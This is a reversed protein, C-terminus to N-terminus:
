VQVEEARARLAAAAEAIVKEWEGFREQRFIRLGPYWPSDLRGQLWRWDGSYRDLMWVPIGLAGALHVMSSDISIVLDLNAALAATDAFDEFSGTWDHWEIGSPVDPPSEGSARKQLSVWCVGPTALLPLIQGFALSRQADHGHERRGAWAIGVRPKRRGDAGPAARRELRQRWLERAPAPVRLYPIDRPLTEPRTAFARPLSLLPCQWDWGSFEGSLQSMMAIKEGFSWECLRLTPPSCAFGVRAFREPLLALYRSFQFVDGYGQETVVLIGQKQTGGEGNWQPLPVPPRRVPQGSGDSGVWRCEYNEWGAEWDGTKLQAFGLNLRALMQAPDLELARQLVERAEDLQGIDLLANGLNNWGDADAPDLEVARRGADV